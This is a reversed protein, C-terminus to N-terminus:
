NSPKVVKKKTTKKAMDLQQKLKDREKILIGYASKYQTLERWMQEYEKAFNTVQEPTTKKAM